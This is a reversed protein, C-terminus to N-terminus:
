PQNAGCGIWPADPESGITYSDVSLLRFIILMWV